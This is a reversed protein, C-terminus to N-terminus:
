AVADALIARSQVFLEHGYTNFVGASSFTCDLPQARSGQSKQLHRHLLGNKWEWVEDGLIGHPSLGHKGEPDGALPMFKSLLHPSFLAEKNIEYM